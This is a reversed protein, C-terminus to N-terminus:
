VTVWNGVYSMIRCVPRKLDSSVRTAFSPLSRARQLIPCNSAFASRAAAGPLPFIVDLRASMM